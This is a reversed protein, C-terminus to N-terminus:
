QLKFTITKENTNSVVHCISGMILPIQPPVHGSDFESIVPLGLEQFIELAVLEHTYSFATEENNARGILIGNVHKFWGCEKLKWLARKLSLPNYEASEFFFIIGDEKYKESFEKMHDYPTGCLVDLCEICGGILRGKMEIAEGGILNKWTTPTDLNLGALPKEYKWDNRQCKSYAHFQLQKGEVVNKFIYQHEGWTTVGFDTFNCGYITAVDCITTLPFSFNTNDSYGSFWKPPLSKYFNADFYSLTEVMEEGGAVSIIISTNPDEYAKKLEYASDKM